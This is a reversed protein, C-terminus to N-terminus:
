ILQRLSLTVQYRERNVDMIMVMIRKGPALAEPDNAFLEGPIESNPMLGDIPGLDVFIGFHTINKVTGELIDGSKISQIFFHKRKFFREEVVARRSVIINMRMREDNVQMIKFNLKKGTLDMAAHNPARQFLIQSGPLFARLGFVKAAYGGAIKGVVTGLVTKKEEFAEITETWGEPAQRGGPM